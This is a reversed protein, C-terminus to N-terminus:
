GFWISKREALQKKVMEQIITRLEENLRSVLLPDKSDEPSYNQYSIPDGFHISWKSPLPIIGMPGLAPFFPTIPIFPLGIPRALFNSKGLLPYIEESGIIATPIIPTQTRIALRIVGGRGFRQLRYRERFLKGVGKVGEPFVTVLHDNRLLREANEQCARVGGFRAMNMGLFPFYYVFDEVLFRVSRNTPHQQHVAVKIMAGDWALVGAHNPVILARGENPIHELGHTDVRWYQDHLFKFLPMIQAEFDPDLGFEDVNQSRRTFDFDPMSVFNKILGILNTILESIQFSSEKSIGGDNKIYESFRKELSHIMNEMDQRLQERDFDSPSEMHAFTNEIKQELKNLENRLEESLLNKESFNKGSKKQNLNVVKSQNKM